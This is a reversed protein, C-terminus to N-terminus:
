SFLQYLDEPNSLYEANLGIMKAGEIHQISDDVFLTNTPNLNNEKCVFEFVEANPKRMKVEHSLYMKTFFHEMPLTSVKAFERRVAPIHLENTNSLLFIPFRKKLTELLELKKQPVDLIMANWAHVVKNPSTGEKLHPLLSNIFHQASVKGTEFDDFLNTQAAQSYVTKFDSMGLAEFARITKNYDLNIIVGGLDLIVADYAM